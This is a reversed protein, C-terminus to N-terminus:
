KREYSQILSSSYKDYFSIIGMNFIQEFAIDACAQLDDKNEPAHNLFVKLEYPEADTQIEISDYSVGKPYPLQDAIHIVKSNDGIYVVDNQNSQTNIKTQSCGTLIFGFISMYISLNKITKM